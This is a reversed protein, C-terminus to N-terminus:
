RPAKGYLASVRRAERAIARRMSTPSIVEVGAGLRLLQRAMYAPTEVPFSARVWGKKEDPVASQEIL